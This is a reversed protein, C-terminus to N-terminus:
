SRERASHAGFRHANIGAEAMIDRVCRAIAPSSVPKHPKKVEILLQRTGAPSIEETIGEYPKICRIVCLKPKDPLALYCVLRTHSKTHGSATSTVGEHTLMRSSVDLTNVDSM